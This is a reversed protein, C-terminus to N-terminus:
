VTQKRRHHHYNQPDDISFVGHQYRRAKGTLVCISPSIQLPRSNLEHGPQRVLRQALKKAHSLYAYHRDAIGETHADM